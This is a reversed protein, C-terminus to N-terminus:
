VATRAVTLGAARLVHAKARASHYRKRVAIYADCFAAIEPLPAAAAGARMFDNAVGKSATDVEHAVDDLSSALPVPTFRALAGAQRALLARLEEQKERVVGQMRAVNDSYAKIDDALKQNAVVRALVDQRAAAVRAEYRKVEDQTSLFAGRLPEDDRLLGLVDLTLTDLAPFAVPLEPLATRGEAPLSPDYM